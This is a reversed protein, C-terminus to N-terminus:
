AVYHYYGDEDRRTYEKRVLHELVQQLRASSVVLTRPNEHVHKLLVALSFPGGKKLCRVLFAELFLTEDLASSTTKVKEGSFQPLTYDANKISQINQLSVVDSDKITTLGVDHRRELLLLPQQKHFVLSHVIGRVYMSAWGLRQTLNDMSLSGHTEMQHLVRYHALSMTLGGVLEVTSQWDLWQLKRFPYTERYTKLFGEKFRRTEACEMEETPLSGVFNSRCLFTQFHPNDYLLSESLDHVLSALSWSMREDVGRIKGLLDRAERLAKGEMRRNWVQLVLADVVDRLSEGGYQFLFLLRNRNEYLTRALTTAYARVQRQFSELVAKLVGNGTVDCGEVFTTTRAIAEWPHKKWQQSVMDEWEEVFSSRYLVMGRMVHPFHFVDLFAPPSFTSRGMVDELIDTYFSASHPLLSCLDYETELLMEVTSMDSFDLSPDLQNRYFLFFVNKWLRLFWMEQHESRYWSFLLDLVDVVPLLYTIDQHTRFKVLDDGIQYLIRAIHMDVYEEFFLIKAADELPEYRQPCVFSFHKELMKLAVSWEEANQTYRHYQNLFTETGYSHVPFRERLMSVRWEHYDQYRCTFLAMTLNEQVIPYRLLRDLSRSLPDLKKARARLQLLQSM